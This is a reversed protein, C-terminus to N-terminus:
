KSAGERTFYAKAADWSARSAVCGEDCHAKWAAEEASVPPVPSPPLKISFWHTYLRPNCNIAQYNDGLWRNSPKYFGILIADKADAETPPKEATVYVTPTTPRSALIHRTLFLFAEQNHKGALDFAPWWSEKVSVRAANVGERAIEKVEVETLEGVPSTQPQRALIAAEVAKEHEILAHHIATIGPHKTSGPFLIESLEDALSKQEQTENM